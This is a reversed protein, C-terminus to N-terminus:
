NTVRIMGRRRTNAGLGALGIALLSLSMPEPVDNNISAEGSVYFGALFINDDNSPNVTRVNIVTDDKKIFSALNYREHDQGVLPNAPSFADNFGGVTILNGNQCFTDSNDDCHGAVNTLLNGNVTITSVQGTTTPNNPDSGDFSFGDGIFMEAHFGPATPDLPSAFSISTSDGTTESFGDLLGVTSIDLSPNSYVVVLAEGDQAGSTESVTFNYTGGLGGDILPKIISTVDARGAELGANNAGLATYTVANGALTGGAGAFSGFTSTYLYAALVTSGVPVSASITGSQTTSGFGDSSYGIKGVFTQFSSLSASATGSGLVSAVALMAIAKTNLTKM